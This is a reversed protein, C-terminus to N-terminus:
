PLVPAYASIRIAGIWLYVHNTEPLVSNVVFNNEARSHISVLHGNMSVCDREASAQTAHQKIYVYQSGQFTKWEIPM